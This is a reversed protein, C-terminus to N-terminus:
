FLALVLWYNIFTWRKVPESEYFFVAHSLKSTTADTYPEAQQTSCKRARKKSFTRFMSQTNNRKQLKAVRHFNKSHIAPISHRLSCPKTFSFSMTSPSSTALIFSGRWNCSDFRHDATIEQVSSSHVLWVWPSYHWLLGWIGYLMRISALLLIQRNM